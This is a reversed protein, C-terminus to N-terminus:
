EGADKIKDSASFRMHVTMATMAACNPFTYNVIFGPSYSLLNDTCDQQFSHAHTQTVITM